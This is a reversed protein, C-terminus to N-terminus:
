VTLLSKYFLEDVYCYGWDENPEFSKIIPHATSHFYKTAHKNVSNDCCGVHDCALCLRLHIWKYGNELCEQCGEETQPQYFLM